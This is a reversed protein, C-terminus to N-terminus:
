ACKEVAHLPCEFGLMLIVFLTMNKNGLHKLPLEIAAMLMFVM